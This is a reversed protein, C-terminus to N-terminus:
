LYFHKMLWACAVNTVCADTVTFTMPFQLLDPNRLIQLCERMDSPTRSTTRLFLKLYAQSEKLDDLVMQVGSLPSCLDDEELETERDSLDNEVFGLERLVQVGSQCDQLHLQDTSFSLDLLGYKAIQGNIYKQEPGLFSSAPFLEKAVSISEVAISFRNSFTIERNLFETITSYKIGRAACRILAFSM